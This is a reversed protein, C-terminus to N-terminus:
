DAGPVALEREQNRILAVRDQYWRTPRNHFEDQLGRQIGRGGDSWRGRRM